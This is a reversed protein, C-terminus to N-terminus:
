LENFLKAGRTMVWRYLVATLVAFVVTMALMYFVIGMRYALFIFVAALAVVIIWGGFMAIAVAGSQKIPVVENTWTLNPMKLGLCLNFFAFFCVFTLSLVIISLKVVANGPIIIAACIGAFLTPVSGLIIQVAAKSLLITETKIPLSKPIWLSKGELSVSPSATDIMCAMSLLLATILVPIAEAKEGLFETMVDIVEPGKILLAIGGAPILLIGLGCNLMYNSSATFRQFEKGLVAAFVSREKTKKEVYRVKQSVGNASAVAFFSRSLVVWTIVSLAVAAALFILTIGFHGEGMRGFQFLLQASGQIKEGYFAANTAMESVLVGARSYAVWYLTIFLLSLFVTFFSKRKVKVTIKAVVWGLLCSLVLVILTIVFYMLLQCIVLAASCEAVAWYVIMAPLFVVISYMVGLLYVNVLRSAIIKGEPIPLSLLFDNDNALYLGSYTSFISGFAGLAIAIGGMMLFYFWSLGMAYFTDCILYSLGTFIGGLLGVMILTYFIFWGIIGAKSRARNKKTNYYFTRFVEALQKKVLVKLM